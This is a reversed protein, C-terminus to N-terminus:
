NGECAGLPPGPGCGLGTGESPISGTVKQNIPQLDTWQAVGTLSTPSRKFLKVYYSFGEYECLKWRQHEENRHACGPKWLTM